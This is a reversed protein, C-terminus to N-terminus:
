ELKGDPSIFLSLGDDSILARLAEHRNALDRLASQLAPVNLAGEIHLTVSENYALSADRGLRDALWMERQAETTPVVRAVSTAAFPDYDVATVKSSVAESM